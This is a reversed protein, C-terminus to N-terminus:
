ATPSAPRSRAKARIAPWRRRASRIVACVKPQKGMPGDKSQFPWLILQEAGSTALWEGDASWDLSRVRAPYGSM